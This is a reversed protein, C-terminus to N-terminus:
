QYVNMEVNPEDKFFLKQQFNDFDNKEMVVRLHLFISKENVNENKLLYAKDWGNRRHTRLPDIM